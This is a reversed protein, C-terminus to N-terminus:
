NSQYAVRRQLRGDPQSLISVVVVGFLRHVGPKLNCDDTLNASSQFKRVFHNGFSPLPNCDDTLNASSQFMRDEAPMDGMANCGDTLNASSQFVPNGPKALPPDKM